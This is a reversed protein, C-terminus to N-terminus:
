YSRDGAKREQTSHGRCLRAVGHGGLGIRGRTELRGDRQRRGVEEGGGAVGKGCQRERGRLRSTLENHLLLILKM